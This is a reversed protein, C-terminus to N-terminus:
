EEPPRYLSNMVPEMSEHLERIKGELTLLEAMLGIMYDVVEDKEQNTM